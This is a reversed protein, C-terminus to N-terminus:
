KTVRKFEIVWVWPNVSWGYGRKSNISDWLDKFKRRLIDRTMWHPEVLTMGISLALGEKYCDKESIDQLRDARVGTIELNIRSAWRPMFISPRWGDLAVYGASTARYEVVNDARIQFTERVWLGDGVQGYPCDLRYSYSWDCSASWFLVKDNAMAPGIKWKDPEKNYADLGNTRRTMTKRGELIAKVMETSFLIPHEKM